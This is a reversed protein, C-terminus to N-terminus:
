NEDTTRELLAYARAMACSYPLDAGIGHCRDNIGKCEEVWPCKEGAPICGKVLKSTQM